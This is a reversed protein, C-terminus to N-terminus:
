IKQFFISTEDFFKLWCCSPCFVHRGFCLSKFLSSSFLQRIWSITVTSISSNRFVKRFNDCPHTKQQDKLLSQFSSWSSLCQSLLGSTLVMKNYHLARLNFALYSFPQSFRSGRPRGGVVLSLNLTVIRYVLTSPIQGCDELTVRVHARTPISKWLSWGRERGREREREIYIYIYIYTHIYIHRYPICTCIHVHFILM